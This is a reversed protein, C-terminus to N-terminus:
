ENLLGHKAYYEAMAQWRAASIDAAQEYDFGDRTLLDNVAYFKAMALWRAASNEAAQEYDFNDRTLMGHEEYFHAMAQWRAAEREAALEYDFPQVREPQGGGASAQLGTPLALSEFLQMNLIAIMGLLLAVFLPVLYQRDIKRNM